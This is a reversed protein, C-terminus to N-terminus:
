AAPDEPIELPDDPHEADWLAKYQANTWGIREANRLTGAYAGRGNIGNNLSQNTAVKIRFRGDRGLTPRFRGLGPIAVPAGIRNFFLIGHSLESLVMRVASANLGSTSALWTSLTDIGVTASYNPQPGYRKAAQVLRAM